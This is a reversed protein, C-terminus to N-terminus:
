SVNVNVFKLFGMDLSGNVPNKRYVSSMLPLIISSVPSVDNLPTVLGAEIVEIDPVNKYPLVIIVFTALFPVSRM